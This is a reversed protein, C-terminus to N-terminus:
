PESDCGVGGGILNQYYRAAAEPWDEFGPPTAGFKDPAVMLGCHYRHEEDQVLAPCVEATGFLELSVSCQEALCCVGCGNCPKGLGPYIPAFPDATFKAITVSAIEAMRVADKQVQRAILAFDESAKSIKM